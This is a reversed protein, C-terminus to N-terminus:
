STIFSPDLTRFVWSAAPPTWLVLHSWAVESSFPGLGVGTAAVNSEVIEASSAQGKARGRSMDKSRSMAELIGGRSGRGPQGVEEGVTGEM